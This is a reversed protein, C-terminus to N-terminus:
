YWPQWELVDEKFTLSDLYATSNQEYETQKSNHKITHMTQSGGETTFEKLAGRSEKKTRLVLRVYGNGM